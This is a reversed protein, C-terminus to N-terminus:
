GTVPRVAFGLEAAREIFADINGIGRQSCVAAPGDRLEMLDGPNLFHRRREDRAYIDNAQDLTSVVGLAGQVSKPFAKELQAFTIEPHSAVYRKVVVLVLRGKGLTKGDCLYKTLDKAGPLKFYSDTTVLVSGEWGRFRQLTLAAVPIRDVVTQYGDRFLKAFDPAISSGVLVGIWKPNPSSDAGFTDKYTSVLQAKESLYEELQDLAARDVEGLKLEVIAVYQDSYSALIDIRGEGDKNKRVRELPVEAAIVEVNGFVDDDLALVQENDILYAEMSLERKVPFTELQVGNVTIHRYIRM